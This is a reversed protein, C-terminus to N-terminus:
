ESASASGRRIVGLEWRLIAPPSGLHHAVLDGNNFKRAHYVCPVIQGCAKWAAQRAAEQEPYVVYSSRQWWGLCIGAIFTLPLVYLCAILKLHAECWALMLAAATVCLILFLLGGFKNGIQPFLWQIVSFTCFAAAFALGWIIAYYVMLEFINRWVTAIPHQWYTKDLM